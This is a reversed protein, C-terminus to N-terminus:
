FFNCNFQKELVFKLKNIPLGVVNYYDGYIKKIFVSMNGQIAYGGSIDSTDNTEIYKEVEADTMDDFYIVTEEQLTTTKGMGVISVGTIVKHNTCKLKNLMVRAEDKDKPKGLIERNVIVITDAAIIIKGEAEAKNNKLVDQAKKMSVYVPVDEIKMNEPYVEKIGSAIVKFDDTLMKFIDERRKSNSALIFKNM